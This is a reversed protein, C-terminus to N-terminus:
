APAHLWHVSFLRQPDTWVPGPRFGVKMALSRFGDISYKYSSETHITQGESFLFRQGDIHVTQERRSILHMEIRQHVPHYIAHHHFADVSFDAGLENNARRLVNLNFAATVGQSDNYAAHLTAPDKILDIGILLSGGRLMAAASRLFALAEDPHFNGLTSGPFFGVRQGIRADATPLSLPATYDGIIPQILLHPYRARLQKAASAIHEGSIDIPLYRAPSQEDDFADLLTQIKKLSGAGFEIIEANPGIWEAIEAAHESLIMQETRTLYYEPLECIRDFLESGAADYFYKPPISRPSQALGNRLDRAFESTAVDSDLRPLANASISNKM